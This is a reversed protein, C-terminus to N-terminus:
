DTLTIVKWTKETKVYRYIQVTIKIHENVRLHYFLTSITRCSSKKLQVIHRSASEINTYIPRDKKKKAKLYEM